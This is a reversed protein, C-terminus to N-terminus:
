ARSSTRGLRRLLRMPASTISPARPLGAPPISIPGAWRPNTWTATPPLSNVFLTNFIILSAPKTQCTIAMAPPNPNEQRYFTSNVIRGKLKGPQSDTLMIGGFNAASPNLNHNFVSNVIEFETSDLVMARDNGKLDTVSPQTGIWSSDLTLKCM